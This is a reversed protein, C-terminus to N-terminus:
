GDGHGHRDRLAKDIAARVDDFVEAPDRAADIVV